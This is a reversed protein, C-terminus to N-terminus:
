SKRGNSTETKWWDLPQKDNRMELLANVVFIPDVKSTWRCYVLHAAEELAADRIIRNRKRQDALLEDMKEVLEALDAASPLVKENSQAVTQISRLVALMKDFGELLNSM